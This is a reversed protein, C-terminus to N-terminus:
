EASPSPHEAPRLVLKGHPNGSVSLEAAERWQTLPYTRAIPLQFAGEATLAAYRALLEATPTLRATLEDLNVRAGLSRAEEHNSITMVRAPDGGALAILHPLVGPSPRPTDLVLDVDHGDTLERVREPMGDGYGTVRAGFKELDEAFTPGATAIVHVGRRLAIQVAAYGVMGGAGHILLTSGPRPDLVELTWAATQVVMPLTAARVPDLGAPVPSWNNLIAYDAAGASPQRAFDATGFVVDGAEVPSGTGVGVADVVGAVDYGIGRPLPGPMFGRCLEWDAPNLGAALVRVRIQGAPPDAVEIREERLVDLPEGTQHFRIARSAVASM